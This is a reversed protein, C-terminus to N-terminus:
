KLLLSKSASNEGNTWLVNYAGRPLNIVKIKTQSVNKEVKAELLLKGAMDYLKINADGSSVPHEVTINDNAPNPYVIIDGRNTLSLKIIQSYSFKADKDIIKLRYYNYGVKPTPHTLGYNKVTNSFGAAATTGIPTFNIGDLSHEVIFHSTNVETATQWKLQAQTGVMQGNFSVLTVPVTCTNTITVTDNSTITGGTCSNFTTIIIYKSPFAPPTVSAFKVNLLGTPGASTTANAVFVGAYTFLQSGVFQSAGGSPTFRRAENSLTFVGPNKGAEAVAKTRAQNQIGLIANGSNTLSECSYNEYYFDIIGTSEYMVAQFTSPTALGCAMDIFIGIHYWSVIFKRCPATGEVRWQIKFDAPSYGSVPYHDAFCPMVAAKPYYDDFQSCIVGGGGNSPIAPSITYANDCSANAIDFTLLGNSGMVANAYTNNYFCFSFPLAFAASYTDDDYLAVDETGGAVIYPFPNYPITTLVYNSTTHIDPVQFTIDTSTTACTPLTITTNNMGTSFCNQSKVSGYFFTLIIILYLSSLKTFSKMASTKLQFSLEDKEFKCCKELKSGSGL